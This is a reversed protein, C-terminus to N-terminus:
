KNVELSPNNPNSPRNIWFPASVFWCLMGIGMWLKMQSLGVAQEFYLIPPIITLLLGAISLTKLLTKM